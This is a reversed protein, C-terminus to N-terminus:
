YNSTSKDRRAWEEDKPSRFWLGPTTDFVILHDSGGQGGLRKRGGRDCRGFVNMTIMGSLHVIGDRVTIMACGIGVTEVANERAHSRRAEPEVGQREWTEHLLLSSKLFGLGATTGVLIAPQRKLSSGNEFLM